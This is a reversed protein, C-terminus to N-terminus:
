VASSFNSRTTARAKPLSAVRASNVRGKQRSPPITTAGFFPSMSASNSRATRGISTSPPLNFVTDASRGRGPGIRPLLLALFVMALVSILITMVRRFM